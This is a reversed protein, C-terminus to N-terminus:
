RVTRRVKWAPSSALTELSVTTTLVKQNGYLSSNRETELGQQQTVTVQTLNGISTIPLMHQKVQQRIM